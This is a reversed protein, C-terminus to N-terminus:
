RPVPFHAVLIESQKIDAWADRAILRTADNLYEEIREGLENGPQYIIAGSKIRDLVLALV